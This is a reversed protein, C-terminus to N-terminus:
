YLTLNSFPLIHVDVVVFAPLFRLALVAGLKRFNGTYHSNVM